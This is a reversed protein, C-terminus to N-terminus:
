LPLAIVTFNYSLLLFLSHFPILLGEVERIEVIIVQM